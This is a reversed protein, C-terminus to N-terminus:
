ELDFELRNKCRGNIPTFDLGDEGKRSGPRARGVRADAKDAICINADNTRRIRADALSVKLRKEGNVEGVQEMLDYAMFDQLANLAPM